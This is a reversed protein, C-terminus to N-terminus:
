KTEKELDKLFKALTEPETEAKFFYGAAGLDKAKNNLAEPINTLLYVPVKKTRPDAKLQKLVDLGNMKPMIIDLLIIDFEGAQAATLGAEGNNALTLEHNDVKLRDSYMQALANEDEVLLIKM